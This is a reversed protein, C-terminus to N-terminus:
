IYGSEGPPYWPGISSRKFHVKLGINASSDVKFVVDAATNLFLKKKKERVTIAEHEHMHM